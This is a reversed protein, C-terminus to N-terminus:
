AKVELVDVVRGAYVNRAMKVLAAFDNVRLALSSVASGPFGQVTLTGNATVTVAAGAKGNEEMDLLSFLLHGVHIDLVAQIRMTEDASM